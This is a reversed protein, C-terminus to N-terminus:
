KREELEAIFKNLESIVFDVNKNLQKLVEDKSKEETEFIENMLDDFRATYVDCYGGILNNEFAVECNYKVVKLITDLDVEYELGKYYKDNYTRFEQYCPLDIAGIGNEDNEVVLDTLLYDVKSLLEDVKNIKNELNKM